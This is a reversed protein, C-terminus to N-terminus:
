LARKWEVTLGVGSKGPQMTAYVDFLGDDPIGLERRLLENLQTESIDCRCQETRRINYAPNDIGKTFQGVDILPIKGAEPMFSTVDAAEVPDAGIPLMKGFRDTPYPMTTTRPITVPEWDEPLPNADFAPVPQSNHKGIPLAIRGSATFAPVFTHVRAVGRYDISAWVWNSGFGAFMMEWDTPQPLPDPLSPAQAQIPAPPLDPMNM